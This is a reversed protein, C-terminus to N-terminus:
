LQGLAECFVVLRLLKHYCFHWEERKFAEGLHASQLTKYMTQRNGLIIIIGGTLGWEWNQLQLTSFVHICVWCSSEQFCTKPPTHDQRKQLLFRLVVAIYSQFPYERFVFTNQGQTCSGKLSSYPLHKVQPSFVLKTQSRLSGIKHVNICINHIM